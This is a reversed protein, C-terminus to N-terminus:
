SVDSHEVVGDQQQLILTKRNEYPIVYTKRPLLKFFIGTEDVNYIDRIEFERLREAFGGRGRGGGGSNRKRRTRVVVRVENRAAKRVRVGGSQHLLRTAASLSDSQLLKEKLFLARERILDQTLPIMHGQAIECFHDM